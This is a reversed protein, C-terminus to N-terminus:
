VFDRPCGFKEANLRQNSVAKFLDKLKYSSRRAGSRFRGCVRSSLLIGSASEGNKVDMQTCKFGVVKLVNALCVSLLLVMFGSLAWCILRMSCLWLKLCAELLSGELNKLAVM